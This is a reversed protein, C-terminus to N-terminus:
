RLIAGAAEPDFGPPWRTHADYIAGDLTAEYLNAGTLDAGPLRAKALDAMFLNVGVLSSGALNAWAVNAWALNAETLDAGALDIWALRAGVLYVGRLPAEALSVVVANSFVLETGYLFRVVQGRRHGDLGKLIELTWDGALDRLDDGPESFLLGQRLLLDRMQGLYADLQQQAAHDVDGDQFMVRGQLLVGKPLECLAAFTTDTLAQSLARCQELVRLRQRKFTPLDGYVTTNDLNEVLRHHLILVAAIQPHAYGVAAILRRMGLKYHDSLTM